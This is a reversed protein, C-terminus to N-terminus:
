VFDFVGVVLALRSHGVGERVVRARARFFEDLITNKVNQFCSGFRALNCQEPTFVRCDTAYTREEYPFMKADDEGASILNSDWFAFVRAREQEKTEQFVLFVLFLLYLVFSGHVCRWVGPHPRFMHTDEGQLFSYVLYSVYAFFLGKKTPSSSSATRAESVDNQDFTANVLTMM